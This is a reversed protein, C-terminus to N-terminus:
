PFHMWRKEDSIIVKEDDSEMICQEGYRRNHFAKWLRRFPKATLVLPVTGRFFPVPALKAPPLASRFTTYRRAMLARLHRTSEM